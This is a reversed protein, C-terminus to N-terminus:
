APPRAVVPATVDVDLSQGVDADSFALVHCGKRTNNVLSLESYM